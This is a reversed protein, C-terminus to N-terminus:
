VISYFLQYQMNATSHISLSLCAELNTKAPVAQIEGPTKRNVSKKEGKLSTVRQVQPYQLIDFQMQSM